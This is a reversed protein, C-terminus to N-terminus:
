QIVCREIHDIPNRRVIANQGNMLDSLGDNGGIINGLQRPKELVESRREFVEGETNIGCSVTRLRETHLKEKHFNEDGMSAM